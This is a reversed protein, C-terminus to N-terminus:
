VCPGLGTLDSCTDVVLESKGEEEVGETEIDRKGVENKVERSLWAAKEAGKAVSQVYGDETAQGTSSSYDFVHSPNFAACHHSGNYCPINYTTHTHTVTNVIYM